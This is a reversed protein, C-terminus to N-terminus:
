SYTVNIRARTSIRVSSNILNSSKENPNSSRNDWPYRFFVSFVVMDMKTDLPEIQYKHPPLVRTWPTFFRFTWPYIVSFINYGRVGMFPKKLSNTKQIVGLNGPSKREFEPDHSLESTHKLMEKDDRISGLVDLMDKSGKGFNSMDSLKAPDKPLFPSYQAFAFAFGEM